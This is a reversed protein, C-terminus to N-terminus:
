GVRKEQRTSSWGKLLFPVPLPVHVSLSLLRGLAVSCALSVESIRPRTQGLRMQHSLECGESNGWDAQHFLQRAPKPPEWAGPPRLCSPLRQPHPPLVAEPWPRQPLNRLSIIRNSQTRSQRSIPAALHLSSGLMPTLLGSGM